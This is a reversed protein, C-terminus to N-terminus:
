KKESTKEIEKPTNTGCDKLLKSGVSKNHSLSQPKTPIGTLRKLDSNEQTLKKVESLLYKINKQQRTTRQEVERKLNVIREKM